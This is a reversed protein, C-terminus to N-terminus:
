VQPTGVVGEGPVNMAMEPDHLIPEAFDQLRHLCTIWWGYVIIVIATAIVLVVSPIPPSWGGRVRAIPNVVSGLGVTYRRLAWFFDGFQVVATTIALLLALRRTARRVLPAVVLEGEGLEISRGAVAGAVLIIGAYLPFGDRAQWVVGDKHAQSVMLATPVLLSAAILAIIVGAHRRLSVILGIGLVASASFLWLGVVLLPSSTFSWGFTGVFQDVLSGTRGLAIEIVGPTGAPVPSDNPYVSLTHAWLIYAVAAVGVLMVAGVAVRVKRLRLLVPLSRPALAALVVGIIALWLASLGRSLVMVSAAAATAAILGTPPKSAWDLVLILGGTWVCTAAAMELGGPNVESGFIIVMPTAIVAVALVLLRSRSWMAALAIALGLLLACLLGSLLRMLYVATNSHWVLSPLGVIAYYLPPYRGVYTAGIVERGSGSLGHSCGAPWMQFILCPSVVFTAFSEPVTVVTVAKNCAKAGHLGDCYQFFARSAPPLQLDLRPTLSRGVIEGRVVSAAKVLQAPEDLAAGIPTAISWAACLFFLIGTSVLWITILRHPGDGGLRRYCSPGPEEAIRIQM